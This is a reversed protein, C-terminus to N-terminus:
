ALIEGIFLGGGCAPSPLTPSTVADAIFPTAGDALAGVRVRGRLRPLPNLGIPRPM